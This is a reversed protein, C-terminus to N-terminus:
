SGRLISWPRRRSRSAGPRGQRTGRRAWRPTSRAAVLPLARQQRGDIGDARGDGVVDRAELGLQALDVHEGALRGRLRLAVLLAPRTRLFPDGGELAVRACVGRSSLSARLWSSSGSGARPVTRPGAAVAPPCAASGAATGRGARARQFVVQAGDPRAGDASARGAAGPEGGRERHSGERARAIGGVRADQQTGLLLQTALDSALHVVARGLAEGVDCELGLDHQAEGAAAIGAGLPLQVLQPHHDLLGEGRGLLEDEVDPGHDEVVQPQHRRQAARGSSRPLRAPTSISRSECPM